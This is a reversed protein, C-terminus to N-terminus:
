RAARADRARRLRRGGRGARGRAPPQLRTRRVREEPRDPVLRLAAACCRAATAPAPSQLERAAAVLVAIAAEDGPSAAHEVHHARQVPGAGRRPSRRPRGATPASGGAARPPSTSRTGSWRTASPSSARRAPRACWHASCCSTSRACPRATPCSRWRPPWAPDFPDGAVAAGDLLRRAEPPLAALEAALSAPSRPRSRATRPPPHHAAAGAARRARALQELYFPNGGSPEYLDTAAPGVLEAAEAASLPALVLRVVRDERMAGALAAALPAPSSAPARRSRWSCPRRRAPAARPRRARRGLRSGGLAPRRPVARAARRRGAARAPRAARSPHPPPGAPRFAVAGRWAGACGGPRAPARGAGGPRARGAAGRPARWARRPARRARRHSLVYPVDAECESARAQLVTAGGATASRPWSPSCARSASAPNERSPSSGARRAGLARLAAAIAAREGARGVLPAVPAADVAAIRGATRRSPYAPAGIAPLAPARLSAAGMGRRARSRCPRGTSRGTAFSGGDCGAM